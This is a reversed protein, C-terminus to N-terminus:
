RVGGAAHNVHVVEVSTVKDARMDLVEHHAAPFASVFTEGTHIADVVARLFAARLEVAEDLTMHRTSYTISGGGLRVRVVIGKTVAGVAAPTPM